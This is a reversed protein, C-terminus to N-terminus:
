ENIKDIHIAIEEYLRKYPNKLSRYVFTNWEIPINTNLRREWVSNGILYEPPPKGMKVRLFGAIAALHKSTAFKLRLTSVLKDYEARTVTITEPNETDFGDEVGRNVFLNCAIMAAITFNYDLKVIPMRDFVYLTHAIIRKSLKTKEIFERFIKERENWQQRTYHSKSPQFVYNAHGCKEGFYGSTWDQKFKKITDADYLGFNQVCDLSNARDHLKFVSKFFLRLKDDSITECFSDLTELREKIKDLVNVNENGPSFNKHDKTCVEWMTVALAWMDMESTYTISGLKDEEKYLMEPPRYWRTVVFGTGSYPEAAFQKTIGFDCLVVREGIKLINSPKVDRHYMKKRHMYFLADCLSATWKSVTAINPEYHGCLDGDALELDLKFFDGDGDEYDDRELGARLIQIFNPNGRLNLLTVVERVISTLNTRVDIVGGCADKVGPELPIEKVAIPQNGFNKSLFGKKVVGFAGKGLLEM